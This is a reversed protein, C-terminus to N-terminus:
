LQFSYNLDKYKVYVPFSDLDEFFFYYYQSRRPSITSSHKISHKSIQNGLLELHSFASKNANQASNQMMTTNFETIRM